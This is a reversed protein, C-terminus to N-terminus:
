REGGSHLNKASFDNEPPVTGKISISIQIIFFFSWNSMIFPSAVAILRM